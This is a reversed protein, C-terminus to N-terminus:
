KCDEFFVQLFINEEDILGNDLYVFKDVQEVFEEDKEVQIFCKDIGVLVFEVDVM